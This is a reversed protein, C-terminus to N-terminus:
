RLADFLEGQMEEAAKWAVLSASHQHRAVVLEVAGAPLEVGAGFDAVRRASQEVQLAAALMGYRATVMPDM